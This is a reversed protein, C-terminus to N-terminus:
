DLHPDDRCDADLWPGDSDANCGIAARIQDVTFGRYQLFRAQKAREASDGPLCTGFKRMRARSALQAWDCNAGAFEAQIVAEAIGQSRLETRIRVPGHGRASGRRVLNGAFRVDSILRRASLQDIVVDIAANAHGQRLLKRRLEEISHERRALLRLAALEVKEHGSESPQAISSDPRMSQPM